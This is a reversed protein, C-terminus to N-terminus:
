ANPRTADVTVTCAGGNIEIRYGDTAGSFSPSEWNAGGIAHTQRGDADLSIAAGSVAVSTATGGPRHINVTLAGGNFTIPVFGSPTGVTIDDRGAGTNFEMSRLHVNALRYTSTLAGTNATIAWPVSPNVQLNLVFTHSQFFPFGPTSQSIRLSGTSRDFTVDPKPGSYEIHARYLDGGLDANGTVTLNAAGVDIEASAQDVSGTPASTDLPHTGVGVNPAVAVYVVAGAVAVAVILVAAVEGAAGQFARRAFLELGIVILIVPWLDQLLYLRDASIVGSNVLLAIIGIVILVAPWFLGRYRTRM